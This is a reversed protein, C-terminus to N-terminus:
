QSCTTSTSGVGAFLNTASFTEGIPVNAIGIGVNVIGNDKGMDGSGCSADIGITRVICSPTPEIPNECLPDIYTPEASILNDSPTSGSLGVFNNILTNHKAERAGTIGTAAGQVVNGRVLDGSAIGVTETSGDLTITNDEVKGAGAIGVSYPGFANVISHTISSSGAIGYVGASGVSSSDVTVDGGSIEIGSGCNPVYQPGSSGPGPSKESVGQGTLSLHTLKGSTNEYRIGSFDGIIEDECFLSTSGLLPEQYGSFLLKVSDAAISLNNLNVPGGANNVLIQTWVNTTGPIAIAGTAPGTVTAGPQNPIVVGNITLPKVITLQEPYTGPCVNIVSGAPAASIAASITTYPHKDSNCTGVTIAAHAVGLCLCFTLSVTFRVIHM